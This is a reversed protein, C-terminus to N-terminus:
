SAKKGIAKKIAAVMEILTKGKKEQDKYWDEFGELSGKGKEYM